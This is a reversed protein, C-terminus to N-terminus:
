VEPEIGVQVGDGHKDPHTSVPVILPHVALRWGREWGSREREECLACLSRTTLLSASLARLGPFPKYRLPFETQLLQTLPTFVFGSPLNRNHAAETRITLLRARLTARRCGRHQEGRKGPSVQQNRTAGHEATPSLHVIFNHSLRVVQKIRSLATRAPTERCGDAFLLLLSASLGSSSGGASVPRTREPILRASQPSSSVPLPFPSHPCWTGLSSM